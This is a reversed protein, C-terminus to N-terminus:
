SGVPELMWLTPPDVDIVVLSVLVNTSGFMAPSMRAAATISATMWKRPGNRTASTTTMPLPSNNVSLRAAIAVTAM